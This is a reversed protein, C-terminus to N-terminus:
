EVRPDLCIEEKVWTPRTGPTWEYNKLLFERPCGEPTIPSHISPIETAGEMARVSGIKRGHSSLYDYPARAAPPLMSLINTPAPATWVEGVPGEPEKPAPTDEYGHRRNSVLIQYSCVAADFKEATVAYVKISYGTQYNCCVSSHVSLWTRRHSITIDLDGEWKAGKPVPLHKLSTVTWEQEIDSFRHCLMPSPKNKKAYQHWERILQIHISTVPVDGLYNDIKCKITYPEEFFATAPGSTTVTVPMPPGPVSVPISEVIDTRILEHNPLVNFFFEDTLLSSQGKINASIVVRYRVSYMADTPTPPLGMPLVYEFPFFFAGPQLDVLKRSDELETAGMLPAVNHFFSQCSHLRENVGELFTVWSYGEFKVSLGYILIPKTTSFIAVGRVTAGPYYVDNELQLRLQPLRRGFKIGTIPLTYPEFMFAVEIFGRTDLNLAVTELVGPDYGKLRLETKGILQSQVLGRQYVKMNIVSSDKPVSM